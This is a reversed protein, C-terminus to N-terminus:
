RAAVLHSPFSTAPSFASARGTSASVTSTSIDTVSSSDLRFITKALGSRRVTAGLRCELDEILTHGTRGSGRAAAAFAARLQKESVHYQFRLRQKERLREKYADDDRSPSWSRGASFM